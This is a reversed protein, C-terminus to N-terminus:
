APYDTDQGINFSTVLFIFTLLTVAKTQQPPTLSLVNPEDTVLQGIKGAGPHYVILTSCDTSHYNTPSVSTTPSFRSWHWKTWWVNWM